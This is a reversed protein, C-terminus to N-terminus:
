RCPRRHGLQLAAVDRHAHRGVRHLEEPAVAVGGFIRHFPHHAVRLDRLDVFARLLDLPDDDRARHDPPPARGRLGSVAGRAPPYVSALTVVASAGLGGWTLSLRECHIRSTTTPTSTTSATARVTASTARTTWGSCIKGYTVLPSATTVSTRGCCRRLGASAAFRGLVAAPFCPRARASGAAADFACGSAITTPSRTRISRM